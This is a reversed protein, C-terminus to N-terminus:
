MISRLIKDKCEVINSFHNGVELILETDKVEDEDCNLISSLFLKSLNFIPNNVMTLTDEKQEFYDHLVKHITNTMDMVINVNDENDKENIKNLHSGFEIICSTVIDKIEEENLKLGFMNRFFWFHYIFSEVVFLIQNNYIDRKIRDYKYLKQALKETDMRIEEYVNYAIKDLNKKKNFLGM